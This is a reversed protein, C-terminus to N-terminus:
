EPKADTTKKGSLTAFHELLQTQYQSISDLTHYVPKIKEMIIKTASFTFGVAEGERNIYYQISDEPIQNRTISEKLSNLQKANLKYESVATKYKPILKKLRRDEREYLTVTQWHTDEKLLLPDNCENTISRFRDQFAAFEKRSNVMAISDVENLLLLASDNIVILSDITSIEHNNDKKNCSFIIALLAFGILVIYRNKEM